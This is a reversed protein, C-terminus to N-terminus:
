GSKSSYMCLEDHMLRLMQELQPRTCAPRVSTGLLRGLVDLANQNLAMAKDLNDSLQFMSGRARILDISERAWPLM